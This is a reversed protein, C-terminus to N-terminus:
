HGSTSSGNQSFSIEPLITLMARPADHDCDVLHWRKCVECTALMRYPLDADPQHVELPQGCNLCPVPALGEAHVSVTASRLLVTIERTTIPQM